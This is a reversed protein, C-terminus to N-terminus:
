PLSETAPPHPYSHLSVAMRARVRLSFADPSLPSLRLTATDGEKGVLRIHVVAVDPLTVSICNPCCEKRFRQSPRCARGALAPNENSPLPPFPAISSTKASVTGDAPDKRSHVSSVLVIRAYTRKRKLKDSRYRVALDLLTGSSTHRGSRFIQIPHAPFNLFNLLVALRGRSLELPLSELLPYHCEILSPM